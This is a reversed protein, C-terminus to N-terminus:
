TAGVIADSALHISQANHGDHVSPRGDNSQEQLMQAPGRWPGTLTIQTDFAVMADTNCWPAAPSTGPSGPSGPARTPACTCPRTPSTRVPAPAVWRSARPS